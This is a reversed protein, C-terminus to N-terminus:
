EYAVLPVCNLRDPQLLTLGGVLCRPLVRTEVGCAPDDPRPLSSFLKGRSSTGQCYDWIKSPASSVSPAATERPHACSAPWSAIGLFDLENQFADAMYRSGHDHRVALGRAVARAFGGFYERVGQRISEFAEFRTACRAAHIGVCEASCHDVAVFVAAQGEGTITTTLDTGWM